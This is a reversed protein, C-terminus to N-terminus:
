LRSVRRQLALKEKSGPEAALWRLFTLRHFKIWKISGRMGMTTVVLRLRALFPGFVLNNSMRPSLPLFNRGVWALVSQVLAWRRHLKRERSTAKNSARRSIVVVGYRVRWSPRSTFGVRLEHLRARSIPIPCHSCIWSSVLRPARLPLSARLQFLKPARSM